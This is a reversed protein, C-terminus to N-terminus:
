LPLAKDTRTTLVSANVTHKMTQIINPTMPTGMLFVRPRVFACNPRSVAMGTSVPERMRTGSPTQVSRKPPRMTNKMVIISHTAGM